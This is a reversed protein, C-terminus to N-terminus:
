PGAGPATTAASGRAPRLASLALLAGFVIGATGLTMYGTPRWRDHHIQAAHAGHYVANAFIASDGPARNETARRLEEIPGQIARRQAYTLGISIAMIAIGVLARSAPPFFPRREAM